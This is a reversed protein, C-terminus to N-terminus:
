LNPDELIDGIKVKFNVLRDTGIKGFVNFGFANQAKQFGFGLFPNYGAIRKDDKILYLGALPRKGREFIKILFCRLILVRTTLLTFSKQVL